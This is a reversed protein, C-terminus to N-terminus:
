KEEPSTKQAASNKENIVIENDKFKPQSQQTPKRATASKKKGPVSSEVTKKLAGLKIKTALEILKKAKNLEIKAQKAKTVQKSKERKERALRAQRARRAQARLKKLKMKRALKVGRVGERPGMPKSLKKELTERFKVRVLKVRGESVM